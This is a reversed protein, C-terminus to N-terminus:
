TPIPFPPVAPRIGGFNESLCAIQIDRLTM